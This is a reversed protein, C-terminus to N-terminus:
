QPLYDNTFGTDLPVEDEVLGKENVWEYFGKWRKADMYGWYPADAQYQDALYKQSALVLEPELEPAASCLIETAEEPNEIAFEYGKSVASLFAKATEPHEELFKDGSIIVPTYYDFVSDIQAFAFYDTELGELETKVGAWGYFIWLADVSKARLASVEDTVTSPILELKAYDGGDVKMVEEVTALEIAGNWTAYTHGELGKPRDMGEGARSIIGSTNHQIVAAVATVPLAQEGSLAAALSDQFSIGFQAKGSAVLSVAGDEPPQVIEVDLGAEKFYGKELAVYLGTHNTNPTWDLVFTIKELDKDVISTDLGSNVRDTRSEANSGEFAIMLSLAALVAVAAVALHRKGSLKESLKGASQNTSDGGLNEWPMCKKQLLDVGKMLLLSIMSILFIVAFMKDFSFAKKVRTMYVGLGGFGGLWESIVAGVIAYSASIRLGAFFQSMAGPLKIYRFIHTQSAGMARLLNVADPDVSKFGNLLGVTIPFFTTIVVLIVKPAMEYGFWLVLLPAIAVTPITQTLVILPYFAQYLVDFRDMFVAMVFGLLIGLILGLFAESLTIVSHEVLVPFESMLAQVVQIPSPLMFSDVIGLSSIMQWLVLIVAIASISWIRNTASRVKSTTNQLKRKM